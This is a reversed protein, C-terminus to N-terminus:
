TKTLVDKEEKVNHRAAWNKVIDQLSSQLSQGRTIIVGLSIAGEIHLRQFNELDRDFFPNKNNWEIELAIHGKDTKYIHDIEHTIHTKEQGDITKSIVFKHKKWNKKTLTRRLRQTLSAEGGGGKILEIDKITFHTLIDCLQNLPTTFDKEFFLLPM